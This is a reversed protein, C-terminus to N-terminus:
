WNVEFCRSHYYENYLIIDDKVKCENLYENVDTICDQKVLLDKAEELVQSLVKLDMQLSSIDKERKKLEHLKERLKMQCRHHLCSVDFLESELQLLLFNVQADETSVSSLSTHLQATHENCHSLM